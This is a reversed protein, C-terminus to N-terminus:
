GWEYMDAPGPNSKFKTECGQYNGGPDIQGLFDRDPNLFPLALSHRPRYCCHKRWLDASVFDRKASPNSGPVLFAAGLVSESVTLIVQAIFITRDNEGPGGVRREVTSRNLREKGQVM